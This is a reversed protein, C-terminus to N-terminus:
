NKDPIPYNVQPVGSYRILNSKRPSPFSGNKLNKPCIPNINPDNQRYDVGEVEEKESRRYKKVWPLICPNQSWHNIPCIFFARQYDIELSLIFLDFNNGTEYDRGSLWYCEPREKLKGTTCRGRLLYGNSIQCYRFRSVIEFIPLSGIIRNVEKARRIIRWAVTM